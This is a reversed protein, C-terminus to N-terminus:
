DNALREAMVKGLGSSSCSCSDCANKCPHKSAADVRPTDERFPIMQAERRAQSQSPWYAWVAVGAFYVFMALLIWSDAIERLLSYMDM